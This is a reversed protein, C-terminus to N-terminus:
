SVKMSEKNTGVAIIEDGRIALSQAIHDENMTVVTGNLYITDALLGHPQPTCGALSLAVCCGLTLWIRYSM